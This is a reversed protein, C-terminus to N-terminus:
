AGIQPLLEAVIARTRPASALWGGALAARLDSVRDLDPRTPTVVARLGLRRAEALTDFATRATSMPVATFLSPAPARTGVLTYGGDAAPGLVVDHEDLLTITARLAAADVTPCDAGVLLVRGVRDHLTTHANALRPGLGDGVQALLRVDAPCLAALVARDGAYSWWVQAGTARAAATVDALMAAALDAAQAASLGPQMRSKVRGPVPAKAVVAIAVDGCARGSV